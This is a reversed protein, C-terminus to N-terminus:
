WERDRRASEIRGFEAWFAPHHHPDDLSYDDLAHTRAHAWEECLTALLTDADTEDRIWITGSTGDEKLNFYGFADPM